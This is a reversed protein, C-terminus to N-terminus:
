RAYILSRESPSLYEDKYQEESVEILASMEGGQKFFLIDRYAFIDALSVFFEGLYSSDMDLQGTTVVKEITEFFVEDLKYLLEKKRSSNEGVPVSYYKFVTEEFTDEKEIAYIYELSLQFYIDEKSGGQIEGFKEQMARQYHLIEYKLPSLGAVMKKLILVGEDLIDKMNYQGNRIRENESESLSLSPISSIGLLPTPFSGKMVKKLSESPKISAVIM